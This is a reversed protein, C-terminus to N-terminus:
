MKVYNGGTEKTFNKNSKNHYEVHHKHCFWIVDLPKTYDEHHARINKNTRCISCSGKNLKGSKVADRVKWGASAKNPHLKRGKSACKRAHEKARDSKFYKEAWEKYKTTKRRKREKEKYKEGDLFYKFNLYSQVCVKCNPRHGDKSQCNKNFESLPKIKGCKSCKKKMNTM